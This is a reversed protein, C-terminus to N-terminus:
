GGAVARIIEIRDGEAIPKSDFQSRRVVNENQAVAVGTGEIGLLELLRGVTSGDPVDRVEGNVTAKM